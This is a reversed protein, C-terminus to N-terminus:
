CGFNVHNRYSSVQISLPLQSRLREGHRTLFGPKREQGPHKSTQSGDEDEDSDDDDLDQDNEDFNKILIALFVNLIIYNGIVVTGVFFVAHWASNMIMADYM